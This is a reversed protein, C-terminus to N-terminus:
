INYTTVGKKKGPLKSDCKANTNTAFAVSFVIHRVSMSTITSSFCVAYKSTVNCSSPHKERSVVFVSVHQTLRKKKKKREDKDMTVKVGDLMNQFVSKQTSSSSVPMVYASSTAWCAKLADDLFMRKPEIPPPDDCLLQTIRIRSSSCRRPWLTNKAVVTLTWQECIWFLSM